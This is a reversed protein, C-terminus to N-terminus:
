ENFCFCAYINSIIKECYEELDNILLIIAFNNIM